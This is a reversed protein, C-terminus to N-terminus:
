EHRAGELAEVRAALEKVANILAYVLANPDLLRLDDVPAGDITGSVQTVMEPMPGEAEQAVLGIFESGDAAVLAHGSQLQPEGPGTKAQQGSPVHVENGKFTYRQPQLQKIEALGHTYEGAINKIRADSLDAWAGGGPKYASGYTVLVNDNRLLFRAAGNGIWTMDGNATNWDWMWASNLWTRRVAANSSDFGFYSGSRGPGCLVQQVGYVSLASVYSSNDLVGTNTLGSTATAGVVLLNGNVALNGTITGGALPLKSDAYQQTALAGVKTNDVWADITGSWDFNFYHGTYPGALGRRTQYGTASVVGIVDLNGTIAGNGVKAIKTDAYAKTAADQPNVPDALATVRKSNFPINQTITSQGDKCICQSLGAAFGDDETDHFDARIKVGATADTVWNRLRIFTGFGDFAM